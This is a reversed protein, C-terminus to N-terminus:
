KNEEDFEKWWEKKADEYGKNYMKELEKALIDTAQSANILKSALM